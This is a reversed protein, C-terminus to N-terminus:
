CCEIHRANLTDLWESVKLIDKFIHGDIDPNKALEEAVQEQENEDLDYESLVYEMFHRAEDNYSYDVLKQISKLVDKPIKM